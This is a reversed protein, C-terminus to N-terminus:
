EHISELKRTELIKLVLYSYPKRFGGIPPVIFLQIAHLLLSSDKTLKIDLLEIETHAKNIPSSPSKYLGCSIRIAFATLIRVYLTNTDKIKSINHV